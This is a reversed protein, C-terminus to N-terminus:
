TWSSACTIWISAACPTGGHWSKSMCQMIFWLKILGYAQRVSRLYRRGPGDKGEAGGHGVGAGGQDHAVAGDGIDDGDLGDVGVMDLVAGGREFELRGRGVVHT